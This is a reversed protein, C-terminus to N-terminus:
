IAFLFLVQALLSNDIPLYDNLCEEKVETSIKLSLSRKNAERDCYMESKYYERSSSSPPLFNM